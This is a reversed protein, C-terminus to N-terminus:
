CVACSKKLEITLNKREELLDLDETYPLSLLRNAGEHVCKRRTADFSWQSWLSLDVEKALMTDNLTALSRLRDVRTENIFPLLFRENWGFYRLTDQGFEGPDPLNGHKCRFFSETDALERVTKWRLSEYHFPIKTISPGPSTKSFFISLFSHNEENVREAEDEVKQMTDHTGSIYTEASLPGHAVAVNRDTRYYILHSDDMLKTPADEYGVEHSGYYDDVWRGLVYRIRDRFDDDEYYAPYINEDWVGVHAVACSTMVFNSWPNELQGRGYIYGFTHVALEPMERLTKQVSIGMETLVKPPYAIDYNTILWYPAAPHSFLPNNVGTSCGLNTPFRLVLLENRCISSKNPQSGTEFLCYQNISTTTKSFLQLSPSSALQLNSATRKNTHERWDIETFGFREIFEDLADGIVEHSLSPKGNLLQEETHEDYWTIVISGVTQLDITHLIRRLYRNEPTDNAVTIGIVPLIHQMPPQDQFGGTQQQIKQCSTLADKELRLALEGRVTAIKEYDPIPVIYESVNNLELNPFLMLNDLHSFRKSKTRNLPPPILERISTQMKNEWETWESDIDWELQHSMRYQAYVLMQLVLLLGVQIPTPRIHIIVNLLEKLRQLIKQLYPSFKAQYKKCLCRLRSSNYTARVTSKQGKNTVTLPYPPALQCSKNVSAHREGNVSHQSSMGVISSWSLSSTLRTALADRERPYKQQSNLLPPKGNSPLDCCKGDSTSPYIATSSNSHQLPLLNPSSERQPRKRLWGKETM